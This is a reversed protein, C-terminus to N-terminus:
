HQIFIKSRQQEEVPLIPLRVEAWSVECDWDSNWGVFSVKVGGTECIDIVKAQEWRGECDLVQVRDGVHINQAM